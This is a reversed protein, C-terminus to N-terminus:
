IKLFFLYIQFLRQGVYEDIFKPDTYKNATQNPSNTKPTVVPSANTPTTNPSAKYGSPVINLPQTNPLSPVPYQANPM